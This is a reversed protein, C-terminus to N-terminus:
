VRKLAISFLTNGAWVWGHVAGTGTVDSLFTEKQWPCLVNMWFVPVLPFGSVETAVPSSTLFVPAWAGGFGLSKQECGKWVCTALWPPTLPVAVLRLSGLVLRM